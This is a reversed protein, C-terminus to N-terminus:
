LSVRLGILSCLYDLKQICCRYWQLVTQQTATIVESIHKTHFLPVSFWNRLYNPLPFFLMYSYKLYPLSSNMQNKVKSWILSGPM